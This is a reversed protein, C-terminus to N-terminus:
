EVSKKAYFRFGKIELQNAELIKQLADLKLGYRTNEPMLQKIRKDFSVQKKYNPYDETLYTSKFYLPQQTYRGVYDFYDVSQQELKVKIRERLLPLPSDDFNDYGMFSVKGSHFHIKVLQIDELEGYLQIGCHVYIRLVAPLLDIFDKHFTLSHNDLLSSAPLIAQAALCTDTILEKDAISFLLERALSLANTYNGFFAKVDQQLAEPLHIYAKRKDFQSLAFYLLCDEKRYREALEFENNEFLQDLLIFTKQQSGVLEKIKESEPFEDNVPIRGLSLCMSWFDKFLAENDVYVREFAAKKNSARTTIQKWPHQRKQRDALFLQEELKDKFVFFVGPGVAIANEDLTNEIFHQLDSQSYYKQFTNLSTIIGDKYSTFKQIHMDSAIMAGVVLLKNSLEFALQLAEIREERDEIVNIVFGINVLDCAFREVEPRHTPDWGAADIGHAELEKLDDGLGCGYDFVTYAGTLYNHKALAKMPASLSQRAIATKHRAIKHEPSVVEPVDSLPFLRGDVLEYGKQQIVREWSKKFGIIRSNEYLGAAEGEETISVFEVYHSNNPSIFLEKRHLIPANETATYDAIKQTTKALDVTISNHLAPYSDTFFDPYNLYSLRFQQTNLKIINWDSEPIKLAKAILFIFDKLEVSIEDFASIHLYRANGVLKGLKVPKILQHFKKADM